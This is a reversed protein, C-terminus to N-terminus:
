IQDFFDGNLFEKYMKRKEEEKLIPRTSIPEGVEDLIDSIGKIGINIKFKGGRIYKVVQKENLTLRLIYGLGFYFQNEPIPDIPSKSTVEKLMEYLLGKSAIHDEAQYVLYHLSHYWIKDRKNKTRELFKEPTIIEKKIEQKRELLEQKIREELESSNVGSIHYQTPVNETTQTEEQKVTEIAKQMEQLEDFDINEIDSFDSIMAEKQRLFDERETTQIDSEFSEYEKSIEEESIAKNQLNELEKVKAIADQMEQLEELDIDELDSFDIELNKMEAIYINLDDRDERPDEKEMGSEEENQNEQDETM